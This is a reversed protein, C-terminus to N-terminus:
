RTTSSSGTPAAPAGSHRRPSQARRADDEGARNMARIGAGGTLVLTGDIDFLVLKPMSVLFQSASAIWDKVGSLVGYSVAMEQTCSRTSVAQRREGDSLRWRLGLAAVGCDDINLRRLVAFRHRRRHGDPEAELAHADGRGAHVRRVGAMMVQQDIQRRRGVEVRRQRDGVVDLVEAGTLGLGLQRKGGPLCM